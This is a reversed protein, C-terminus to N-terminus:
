MSEFIAKEFAKNAESMFMPYEKISRAMKIIQYASWLKYADDSADMNPIIDFVSELIQRFIAQNFIAIDLARKTEDSHSLSYNTNAKWVNLSAEIFANYAM